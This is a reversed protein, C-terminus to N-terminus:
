AASARRREAWARSGSLGVADLALVIEDKMVDAIVERQTASDLVGLAAAAASAHQPADRGRSFEVEIGVVFERVRETLRQREDASWLDARYKAYYWGLRAHHVEDSVISTFFARLTADTARRRCETLLAAALTEGVAAYKLMLFDLEEISLSSPIDSALAATPVTVTVESGQCLSAMRLCYDAHRIEDSSVRASAAVFDIPAQTLALSSTIQAFLAVASYEGGALKCFLDRALALAEEPYRARDFEHWPIERAGRALAGRIAADHLAALPTDSLVRTIAIDAGPRASM